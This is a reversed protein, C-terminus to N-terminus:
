HREVSNRGSSRGSRPYLQQQPNYYQQNYMQQDMMNFLQHQMLPQPQQVVYPYQQIVTHARQRQEYRHPQQQRPQQQHSSNYHQQQNIAPRRSNSNHQRLPGGQNNGQPQAVVPQKRYAGGQHQQSSNTKQTSNPTPLPLHSPTQGNNTKKQKDGLTATNAGSAIPASATTNLAPQPPIIAVEETEMPQQHITNHAALQEETVEEDRYAGSQDKIQLIPTGERNIIRYQLFKGEKRMNLAYKGLSKAAERATAPFCDMVTVGRNIGEKALWRKIRIIAEKKKSSSRMVIVMARAAMRNGRAENDATQMRDMACYMSTDRLIWNIIEAPDAQPDQYWDRLAPIGGIFFASSTDDAEGAAGDNLTLRSKFSAQMNKMAVDMSTRWSKMSANDTQLARVSNHILVVETATSTHAFQISSSEEKLSELKLQHDALVRNHEDGTRVTEQLNTTLQAMYSMQEEHMREVRARLADFDARPVWDGTSSTTKKNNVSKNQKGKKKITSQGATSQDSDEM